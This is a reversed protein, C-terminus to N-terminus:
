SRFQETLRAGVEEHTVHEGRDLQDLGEQVQRRFWEEHDLCNEVLQQVYSDSTATSSLLWDHLVPRFRPNLTSKWRGKVM